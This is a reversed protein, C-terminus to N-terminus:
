ATEGTYSHLLLRYVNELRHDVAGSSWFVGATLKIVSFLRDSVV